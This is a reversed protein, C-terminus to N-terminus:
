NPRPMKDSLAKVFGRDVEKSRPTKEALILKQWADAYRETYFFVIAWNQLNLTHSPARAYNAAFLPWAKDLLVQNKTMAGAMGIARAHDVLFDIDGALYPEAEEFLKLGQPIKEQQMQIAGMGWLASGDLPNLLWAQNFRRMAESTNGQRLMQWARKSTEDAARHRDKAFYTDMEALFQADAELQATSKAVEGYKPLLNNSQAFAFLTTGAWLLITWIIKNRM